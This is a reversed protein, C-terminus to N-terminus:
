VHSFLSPPSPPLLPMGGVKRFFFFFFLSLIFLLLFDLFLLLYKAWQGRRLKNARVWKVKKRLWIFRLFFGLNQELTYDTSMLIWFGALVLMSPPTELELWVVWLRFCFYKIFFFIFCSYTNQIGRRSKELSWRVVRRRSKV